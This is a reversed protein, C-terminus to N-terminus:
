RHELNGFHRLPRKKTEKVKEGEMREVQVVPQEPASTITRNSHHLTKGTKYDIAWLLSSNMLFSCAIFYGMWNQGLSKM